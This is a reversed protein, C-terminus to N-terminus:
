AAYRCYRRTRGNRGEGRQLAPEDHKPCETAEWILDVPEGTFRCVAYADPEGPLLENKFVREEFFGCKACGWQMLVQDYSDVSGTGTAVGM